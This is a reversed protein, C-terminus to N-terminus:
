GNIKKISKEIISRINQFTNNLDEQLYMYEQYIPYSNLEKKLSELDNEEKEVNIGKYEKKIIEQQLKKIESILLMITKNSQLKTKLESYRKYENTEKVLSVLEDVKKLLLDKNQKEM